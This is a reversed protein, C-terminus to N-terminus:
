PLLECRDTRPLRCRSVDTFAQFTDTNQYSSMAEPSPFRQLMFFATRDEPDQNNGVVAVVVRLLLADVFVPWLSYALRSVFFICLM